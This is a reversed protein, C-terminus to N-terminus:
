EKAGEAPPGDGGATLRAISYSIRLLWELAIVFAIFLAFDPLAAALQTVRASVIEATFLTPDVLAVGLLALPLMKALDVAIEERYYAVVRIAAAVSIAIVFVTDLSLTRSLLFLSASLFVFWLFTIAPFMVTYTLLAAAVSGYSHILGGLGEGKASPSYLVRRSLYNYFTGFVAAYLAIGLTLIAVTAGFSGILGEANSFAASAAAAAQEGLMIRKKRGPKLVIGNGGPAGPRPTKRGPNALAAEALGIHEQRPRQHRGATQRFFPEGPAPGPPAIRGSGAFAPRFL